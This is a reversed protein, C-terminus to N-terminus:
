ETYPRIPATRVTAQPRSRMMSLQKEVSVEQASLPPAMSRALERERDREEIVSQTKEMLPKAQDVISQTRTMMEVAHQKVPELMTRMRERPESAAMSQPASAPLPTIPAPASAPASAPEAVPAVPAAAAQAAKPARNLPRCQYKQRPDRQHFDVFMACDVAVAKIAEMIQQMAVDRVRAENYVMAEVMKVNEPSGEMLGKIRSALELLQKQRAQVRKEMYARSSAAEPTKYPKIEELRTLLLKQKEQIFKYEEMWTEVTRAQIALPYDSLYRHVIVTWEGQSRELDSHSCYRAARGVAQIERTYSVLPEFVHIHRVAKLDLGANFAQSAIIVNVLEGHANQRHNFV